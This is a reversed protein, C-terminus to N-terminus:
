VHNVKWLFTLLTTIKALFYYAFVRLDVCLLMYYIPMILTSAFRETIFRLRFRITRWMTVYGLGDNRARELYHKFTCPHYAVADPQRIWKKGHQRLRMYLELDEGRHVAVNFGGEALIEKRKLISIGISGGEGRNAKEHLKRLIPDTRFGFVIKSNVALVDNDANEIAELMRPYWSKSIWIDDDLFVAYQSKALKLGQQRAYGLTANPTLLVKVDLDDLLEKDPNLSSEVVIVNNHYILKKAQAVAQKLLESRDKSCIIVDCKEM